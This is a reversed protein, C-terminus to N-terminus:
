LSIFSKNIRSKKIKRNSAISIDNKSIESKPGITISDLISNLPVKVFSKNNLSEFELKTHVDNKRKQYERYFTESLEKPYKTNFAGWKALMNCFFLFLSYNDSVVFRIEKEASYPEKTKIFNKWYELFFFWVLHGANGVKSNTEQIAPFIIEMFKDAWENDYSVFCCKLYNPLLHFDLLNGNIHEIFRDTSLRLNVGKGNDGYNEWLYRNENTTSNSQIFVHDESLAKNIIKAADFINGNKNNTITGLVRNEIDFSLKRELNDEFNNVTYLRISNTDLMSYFSSLSTYHYIYKPIKIDVSGDIGKLIGFFINKAGTLQAQLEKSM